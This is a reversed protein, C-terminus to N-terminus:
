DREGFAQWNRWRLADVAFRRKELSDALSLTEGHSALTRPQPKCRGAGV